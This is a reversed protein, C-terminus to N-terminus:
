EEETKDRLVSGRPRMPIERQYRLWEVEYQNLEADVNRAQANGKDLIDSRLEQFIDYMAQQDATRDDDEGWLFAFHKEVSALAGIMTTKIKKKVIKSLRNKSDVKYRDKRAQEYSAKEERIRNFEDM